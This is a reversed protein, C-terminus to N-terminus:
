TEQHPIVIQIIAEQVTLILNVILQGAITWLTAIVLILALMQLMAVLVQHAKNRM